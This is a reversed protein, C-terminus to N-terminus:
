QLEKEIEKKLVEKARKVSEHVFRENMNEAKATNLNSSHKLRALLVRKDFPYIADSALVKELAELYLHKQEKSKGEYILDFIDNSILDLKSMENGDEDVSIHEVTKKGPIVYNKHFKGSSCMNRIIARIYADLKKIRNLQRLKTKPVKYLAIFLEQYLDEYLDEDLLKFRCAAKCWNKIDTRSYLNEIISM